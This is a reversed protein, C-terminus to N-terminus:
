KYSVLSRLNKFFRLLRDINLHKFLFTGNWEIIQLINVLIKFM